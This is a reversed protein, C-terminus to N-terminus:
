FLFIEIFNSINTIVKLRLMEKELAEKEKSQQKKIYTEEKDSCGKHCVCLVICILMLIDGIPTITKTKFQFVIRSHLM